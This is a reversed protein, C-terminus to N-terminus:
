TPKTRNVFLVAACLGAIANGYANGGALGCFIGVIPLVTEFLVSAVSRLMFANLSEGDRPERPDKSM